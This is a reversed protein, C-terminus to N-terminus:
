TRSRATAAITCYRTRCRNTDKGGVVTVATLGAAAAAEKFAFGLSARAGDTGAGLAVGAVVAPGLLILAARGPWGRPDRRVRM